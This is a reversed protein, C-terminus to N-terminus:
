NAEIDVRSIEVYCEGVVICCCKTREDSELTIRSSHEVYVDSYVLCKELCRLNFSIYGISM